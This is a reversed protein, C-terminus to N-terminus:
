KYTKSTEEKSAIKDKSKLKKPLLEINLALAQLEKILVKFSEPVGIYTIPEGKIISEYVKRRGEVDDSKVTLFEQLTYAAGYGELAWVEMEGFRQGGFHARGGLPQKTVLSYPGTSRAHIKDEVMHVLKMIYMYGVLVKEMFPEGTRGDFLTIKGNDDPLYKEPVGKSRLYEKAKRIENKVEEESAGDFPATIYQINLHKAAWGLMTELLQGVNMRSPVGLPSLVIDIPTGDPLYPMDAEPLIKAVVGKNGHRGSLKDGVQIKRLSAIYIKVSKLVTLPLDDFSSPKKIRERQIDRIKEYEEWLQKYYKEIASKYEKDNQKIVYEKEEELKNKIELYKQKIYDLKKRQENKTLKQSRSILQRWIVKGKVGPPVELPVAKGSELKKGFIAQLLKEEVTTAQESTPVVKGVLIDGTKVETGIRVIGEEDLNRLKEETIQDSPLDRTIEEPGLKTERADTEFETITISTFVDDKVLRESILIADEFNYGEFSMFAVLVNKGLALQGKDTCMNGALVDGKKVKQGKNVIPIFNINTDQNSREYKPLYYTDIEKDETLIVIESADVFLVEGPNRAIICGGSDKAVNHEIGTAVLPAEPFLLPVAQRQMNAGMLARNSDDHELFPILSASISLMQQPSVDIYDVKSSEVFKIEGKVRALVNGEKLKGNETEVDASTIIYDEEQDATLYEIEDTIKGNKVKRYPTEIIGYENVRAYLALSTILGINAGEPTEIPCIRGYHSSHVDRVEFGAHKRSLGGPGLASLRRKSTIDSLLNTKDLFQSLEGTAFFKKIATVLPSNNIVNQPLASKVTVEKSLLNNMQERTLQAVGILGMRFIDELQDGVPRIHRNGLHDIDDTQPQSGDSLSEDNNFKILYKITAIIDTTTLTFNNNSPKEFGLKSLEEFILDLKKNIKLRGVKSLNYRRSTFFLDDLFNKARRPEWMDTRLIKYIHEIASQYTNIKDKELTKLIAINKSENRDVLVVKKINYQLLKEVINLEVENLPEVIIEGTEENVIQEAFLKKTRSDDKSLEEKLKSTEIEECVCFIKIIEETSFGIARLLTTVYFKRKKDIMAYLVNDADFVFELWSGRYPIISATFLKKGEQSIEIEEDEEFFVGPARHIQTVVVREAGNIIFSGTNTMLPINVLYVKEDIVSPERNQRKIIMRFNVLLRSEYTKTTYQCSIRNFNEKIEKSLINYLKFEKNDEVPYKPELLEYGNYQLTLTVENNSVSIGQPVVKIELGLEELQKKIKPVDEDDVDDLIVVPLFTLMREIDKVDRKIIKSLEKVASKKQKKEEPLKEVYISNRGAMGFVDLFARHIGVPKKEKLPIDKQLFNEFSKKQLELFYPLNILSKKKAFSYQKM